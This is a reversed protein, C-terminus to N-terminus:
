YELLNRVVDENRTLFPFEKVWAGDDQVLKKGKAHGIADVLMETFSRFGGPNKLNAELKQVFATSLLDDKNPALAKGTNDQWIKRLRSKVAYIMAAQRGNFHFHDRWLPITIRSDAYHIHFARVRDNARWDPRIGAGRVLAGDAHEYTRLYGPLSWDETAIRQNSHGPLGEQPDKDPIVDANGREHRLWSLQTPVPAEYAVHRPISSGPSFVYIPDENHTNMASAPLVLAATLVASILNIVLM